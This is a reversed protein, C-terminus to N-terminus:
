RVQKSHSPRHTKVSPEREQQGHNTTAITNTTTRYVTNNYAASPAASNFSSLINPNRSQYNLPPRGRTKVSSKPTYQTAIHRSHPAYGTNGNKKRRLSFPFLRRRRSKRTAGTSGGFKHNQQTIVIDHDDPETRVNSNVDLVVPDDTYDYGVPPMPSTVREPAYQPPVLPINAEIKNGKINFTQLNELEHIVSPLCTLRNNGLDLVRLRKLLIIDQSVYEIKNANLKLTTLQTLNYVGLPLHELRNRSANLHRVRKMHAVSFNTLKNDAINLYELSRLDSPLTRIANSQLLLTRLRPLSALSSIVLKLQNHSIDLSHLTRLNTIVHPWSVFVNSSVNLETLVELQNFEAPLTTLKNGHLDLAELSTLQCVCIPLQDFINDSLNLQRLSTLCRLNHPLYRCTDADCETFSPSSTACSLALCLYLICVLSLSLCVSLLHSFCLSRSFSPSLYCSSFFASLKLIAAMQSNRQM